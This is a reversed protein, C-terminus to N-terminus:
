HKLNCSPMEAEYCPCYTAGLCTNQICFRVSSNPPKIKPPTSSCRPVGCVPEPCPRAICLTPPPEPKRPPQGCRQPFIFNRRIRNEKNSPFTFSHAKLTHFMEPFINGKKVGLPTSFISALPERPEQCSALRPPCPEPPPCGYTPCCFRPPRCHHCPPPLTSRKRDEREQCSM